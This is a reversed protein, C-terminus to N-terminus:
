MAGNLPIPDRPVMIQYEQMNAMAHFKQWSDGGVINIDAPECRWRSQIGDITITLTYTRQSFADILTQARNSVHSWTDGYVRVVLPATMQELTAGILARGHQYRGDVFIRKWSKGGPGASVIKLGGSNLQLASSGSRSVSGTVNLDAM